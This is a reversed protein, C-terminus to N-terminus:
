CFCFVCMIVRLFLSDWATHWSGVVLRLYSLGSWHRCFLGFFLVEFHTPGSFTIQSPSIKHLSSFIKSFFLDRPPCTICHFFFALGVSVSYWLILLDTLGWIVYFLANDIWTFSWQIFVMIQFKLLMPIHPLILKSLTQNLRKGWSFMWLGLPALSPSAWAHLSDSDPWFKLM